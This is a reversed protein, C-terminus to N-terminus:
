NKIALFQKALVIQLVEPLRKSIHNLFHFFKGPVVYNRKSKYIDYIEQAVLSTEVTMWSDFLVSKEMKANKQFNTRVPTPCIALCRVNSKADKLEENIARTFQYVFAKCAGYVALTPNPQFASISSINIITGNNVKLMEGLFLRTSHYLNNVMLQIMAKERNIDIDNIFGFTGFGANNVVIELSGANTKTWDFLAITNGEVSLDITIGKVTITNNALQIYEIASNMENEELSSILINFGKKAFLKATELGIGSSGGTILITKISQV